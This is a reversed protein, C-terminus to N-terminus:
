AGQEGLGADLRRFFELQFAVGMVSSQWLFLGLSISVSREYNVKSEVWVVVYNARLFTAVDLVFISFCINSCLVTWCEDYVMRM